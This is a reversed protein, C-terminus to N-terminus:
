TPNRLFAQVEDAPLPRAFFYGQAYDCGLASLEDSDESSEVGEAVVPKGLNHGLDAIAKVIERSDTNSTIQQVFSQDIKVNDIPFDHLLSLSSYGTGFDDLHIQVGRDKLQVIIARAHEPDEILTTETIELVLREAAIGADKIARDVRAVLESSRLQKPSINVSVSLPKGDPSEWGAMEICAQRLVWYGIPVILDAAEATPIFVGPSIPGLEPHQWRILAEFGVVQHGPLEVIPQYELHFENREIAARLDAEIRITTMAREHMHENFVVYRGRGVDKAQYLASDASTLVAEPTALVTSSLVIGVSTDIFVEQGEISFPEKISTRIRKAAIAADTVDAVTELVVVFEDGGLRAVTDVDRVCELLRDGVLRLLRDGARHGLSDNVPKVRDLDLFLVAFRHNDDRRSHAQVQAIRDLLLARNPLRTLPDYFAGQELKAQARNRVTVDQGYIAVSELGEVPIITLAFERDAIRLKANQAIGRRVVEDVIEQIATPAIGGPGVQWKSLLQDSAGNAYEIRGDGGIWLVPHPNVDPFRQAAAIERQLAGIQATLAGIAEAAGEFGPPDIAM